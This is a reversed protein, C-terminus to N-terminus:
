IHTCNVTYLQQVCYQVSCVQYNERKGELCDGSSRHHGNSPLPTRLLEDCISVIENRLQTNGAAKSALLFELRNTLADPASSIVVTKLGRGVTGYLAEWIPKIIVKYKYGKSSKPKNSAPNNGHKMASAQKLIEAYEARDNDTYINREREKMIMCLGPTSHYETGKVTINDGDIDIPRDDIYFKGGNHFAL